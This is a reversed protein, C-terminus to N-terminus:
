NVFINGSMSFLRNRQSSHLDGIKHLTLQISYCMVDDTKDFSSVKQIKSYASRRSITVFVDLKQLFTSYFITRYHYCNIM